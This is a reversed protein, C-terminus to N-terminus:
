TQATQGDVVKWVVVVVREVPTGSAPDTWTFVVPMGEAFWEWVFAPLDAAQMQIFHATATIQTLMFDYVFRRRGEQDLDEPLPPCQSSRHYRQEVERPVVANLDVRGAKLPPDISVWQSRPVMAAPMAAQVAFLM